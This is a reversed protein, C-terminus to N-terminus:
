LEDEMDSEAAEFEAGDPSGVEVLDIVQM